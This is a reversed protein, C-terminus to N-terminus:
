IQTPITKLFYNCSLVWKDSNHLNPGSEHLATAPFILLDGTKIPVRWHRATYINYPEYDYSFSLNDPRSFQLYASPCDVYYIVSFLANPHSHIYHASNPKGKTTWSQTIVLESKILLIKKFFHQAKEDIFDEIRKFGTRKFIEHDESVHVPQFPPAGIKQPVQPLSHILKLEAPNVRFDTVEKYVPCSFLPFIIPNPDLNKEKKLNGQAKYLSKNVHDGEYSGKIKKNPELIQKIKGALDSPLRDLEEFNNPPPETHKLEGKKYGNYVDTM